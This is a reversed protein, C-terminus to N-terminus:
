LRGVDIKKDHLREAAKKSTNKGWKGKKNAVLPDRPCYTHELVGYNVPLLRWGTLPAAHPRSKDEEELREKTLFYNM